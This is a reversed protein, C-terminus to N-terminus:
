ESAFEKGNDYIVIRPRPYRNLWKRDFILAIEGSRKSDYNHLEPWRTAVDIFSVARIAQEAGNIDTYHWPGFLDAQVCEWPQYFQLTPPLHGYNKTVRKNKQSCRRLLAYVRAELGRAHFHQSITKYTREIGPHNLLEHYWLIIRDM